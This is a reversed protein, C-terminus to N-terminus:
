FATSVAVFTERPAWWFAAGGLPITLLVILVGLILNRNADNTGGGLVVRRQQNPLSLPPPEKIRPPLSQFPEASM